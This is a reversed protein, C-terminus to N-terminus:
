TLATSGLSSRHRSHNAQHLSLRITYSQASKYIDICEELDADCTLLVWERDDDLYKLDFRSIDLINLRKAIEQQLDGFRCDPQLSFRIKVDEFGAKVKFFGGQKPLEPLPEINNFLKQSQSRALPKLEEQALSHLDVDSHARKLIGGPNEAMLANRIAGTSCSTSSGSSQSCSSSPSKPGHAQQFESPKPHDNIKLPSFPGNDSLNPSSLEPFASYFSEIQISGEAGQVSDIVLQLKKLSHGVKKIKRSPWRSIGHQRCIRKLTTPCVGISKAADKLSGAFYQQLDKLSISEMKTRRKESLKRGSSSSEFGGKVSSKTRKNQQDQRFEPIEQQTDDDLQSTFKFEEKPEVKQYELSISVGKGKKQAEMMHAIWSLEERSRRQESAVVTEKVPLIVEEELDKDLVVHLCRCAQQMLSRSLSNLMQKQQESDYCDKPLFLELVFEVSGSYVSRLPIAVAARLGFMRAHHSLPYNTKSFATIDTAFCQKHTKFARGVIGQGRLLHHESCAEYFELLEANSVFCASDVTSVCRDYNEDSHRPLGICLAWTLVLPLRHTNCISEIIATIEPLAVQNLDSSVKTSPPSFNESSRLDAAELAKCVDELEPRYNIKRATTVLEVVGLCTGSGREFVPLALSGRVDYQRAFSIRPYEDSRFFCVDPTWEPFKGLYVRGPLGVLDKSDEEVPFCYNKSVDRYRLLSECNTNLSYPQDETTLVHKDGRKVPVWIQILFERDKTFEKFCKMAKRLRDRVSSSPGPEATPEIWWKSGLETGEVLFGGSQIISAAAGVVEMNQPNSPFQPFKLETDEHNIQDGGVHSGSPGPQMPNFGDGTELWCGDFLFDDMFDLDMSAEPSTALISNPSFFGNNDM